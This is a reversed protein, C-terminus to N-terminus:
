DAPINGLVADQPSVWRPSHGAARLAPELQERDGVIVWRRAADPGLSRRALAAIDEATLAGVALGRAHLAVAGGREWAQVLAAMATDEDVLARNQERILRAQERRLAADSAASSAARALTAEIDAIAPAVAHTPLEVQMWFRPAGSADSWGGSVGYTWGREERLLLNLESQFGDFVVGGLVAAAPAQPDAGAPAPLSLSLAVQDRGPLDVGIVAVGTHVPPAARAGETGGDLENILLSLHPHLADPDLDGVVFVTLPSEAARKAQAARLDAPRVRRVQRLSWRAGWPHTAPLWTYQEAQALASWPDQPWEHRLARLTDRRWRRLEAASLSPDILVDRLRDLGADVHELPVDLDVWGAEPGLGTRLEADIADLATTMATADLAGAGVGLQDGLAACRAPASPCLRASGDAFRVAIRVRPLGPTPLVWAEVGERLPLVQVELPPRLVPSPVAPPRSRDPAPVPDVVAGSPLPTPAPEQATAVALWLPAIAIM